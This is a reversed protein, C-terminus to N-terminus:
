RLGAAKNSLGAELERLAEPLRPGFGLLLLDEMANGLKEVLKGAIEPSTVLRPRTDHLALSM